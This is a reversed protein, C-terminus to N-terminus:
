EKYEVFESAWLSGSLLHVVALAEDRRMFIYTTEGGDRHFALYFEDPPIGNCLGAEFRAANYQQIAARWCNAIRGDDLRVLFTAKDSVGDAKSMTDTRYSDVESM